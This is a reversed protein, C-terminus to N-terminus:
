LSNGTEQEHGGYFRHKKLPAICPVVWERQLGTVKGFNLWEAKSGGIGIHVRNRYATIM